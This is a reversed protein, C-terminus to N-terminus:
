KKRRGFNVFDKIEKISMGALGLNNLNRGEFEFNRDQLLSCASIIAESCPCYVKALEAFSVLPVLGFPVDENIQRVNKLKKPVKIGKYAENNIIKEYLTKGKAHYAQELWQAASKLKIGFAKAIKLREEDVKELIEATAPIINYFHFDEKQSIRHIHSLMIMPHFVAGINDFSTELVNKASHFEPYLVQVKEIIKKTETAPLAALSVRKKIGHILVKNPGTKRCAYILTNTEAITIDAKVKMKELVHNFELAGGTRGPNLIIIQGNKLHPACDKAIQAHAFAPAVVMIIEVNKIAKEINTTVLNLKGFGTIKGELQIGGLKQIPKIEKPFPSCLNVGFGESALYSAIAPGGNGAGLVAIKM